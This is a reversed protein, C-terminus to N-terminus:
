GRTDEDIARTLLHPSASAALDLAVPDLLAYFHPRKRIRGGEFDTCGEAAQLTSRMLFALMNKASLVV